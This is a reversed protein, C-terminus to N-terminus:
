LMFLDASPAEEGQFEWKTRSSEKATRPTPNQNGVLAKIHPLVESKGGCKLCVYCRDFDEFHFVVVDVSSCARAFLEEVM